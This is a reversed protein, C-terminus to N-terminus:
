DARNITMTIAPLSAAIGAGDLLNSLSRCTTSKLPRYKKGALTEGDFGLVANECEKHM